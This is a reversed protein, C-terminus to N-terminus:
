AEGTSHNQILEELQSKQDPTLEGFQVGCRRMAKHNLPIPDVVKRLLPNPIDYDSVTEFPIKGLSLGGETLHIDLYSEGKPRFCFTDGMYRFSVGDVSIDMIQGVISGRSDLTVFSGAPVQYRKHKRKNVTVRKPIM